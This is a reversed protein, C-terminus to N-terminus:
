LSDWNSGAHKRRRAYFRALMYCLRKSAGGRRRGAESVCIRPTRTCHYLSMRYPNVCTRFITCPGISGIQMHAIKLVVRRAYISGAGMSFKATKSVHLVEFHHHHSVPSHSLRTEDDGVGGVLERALVHWSKTSPSGTQTNIHSVPLSHICVTTGLSNAM